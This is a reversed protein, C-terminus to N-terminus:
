LIGGFWALVSGTHALSTSTWLIAESNTSAQSWEASPPYAEFSPDQLLNVGSAEAPLRSGTALVVIIACLSFFNFINKM